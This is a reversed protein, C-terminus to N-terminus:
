IVYHLSGGAAQRAQCVTCPRTVLRQAHQVAQMTSTQRVPQERFINEAGLADALGCKELCAYLGQRVGCLVVKRGGGQLREICHKLLATGVADPNRARKMRLVVVQTEGPIFSSAIM